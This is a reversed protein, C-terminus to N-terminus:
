SCSSVLYFCLHMSDICGNTTVTFILSFLSVGQSLHFHFYLMRFDIPHLFPLELSFNIAICIVDPFFFIVFLRFKYRFSSSFLIFSTWALLLFSIIFDYHFCIFCLSFSPLFPSHLSNQEKFLYVFNITSALCM